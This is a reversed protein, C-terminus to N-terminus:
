SDAQKELYNRIYRVEDLREPVQGALKAHLLDDLLRGVEKGAPVGLGILDNGDLELALKEWKRKYISFAELGIRFKDPQRFGLEILGGVVAIFPLGHFMDYIEMPSSLEHLGGFRIDVNDKLKRYAEVSEREQRTLGIRHCLHHFADATMDRCLLCLYVDFLFDRDTYGSLKDALAKLFDSAQIAMRIGDPTPLYETEMDLLRYCGTELFFRVCESKVPSEEAGLFGKLEQKIREGGGKYCHVGYKLFNELLGRTEESLQFGFRACFKMARLIRSPDEFFSVPHLVRIERRQIDRMGDSYDLVHGLEHISFALANISFDRRVVDDVLPVGRNVVMPLAGCHAYVEQRTSAIDFMLSDKYRAKATGFEPYRELVEFNRSNDALFDCLAIADGEVTIDVDQVTMKKENYLILDRTIGGIVYAKQNFRLILSQLEYLAAVFYVPFFRSLQRSYDVSTSERGRGAHLLPSSEPVAIAEIPLADLGMTAMKGLDDQHVAFRRGDLEYALLDTHGNRAVDLADRIPLDPAPHM